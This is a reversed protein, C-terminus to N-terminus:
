LSEVFLIVLQREAESLNKFNTVVQEAEGGHWLIAEEINRARGDHLFNTHGNVVNVLGIGWLPPTKWEQGNAEFSPRNDALGSGMDHLLLDTFPYIKQNALEPIEHYGTTYSPRHCSTCGIEAFLLEGRIVSADNVNRPAPVALTQCYFTVVDLIDQTIEPSPSNDIFNSQGYSHEVPFYPSTIGMDGNYAGAVQQLITPNIGKWGFRGLEMQENQYNYVYNPKGSIGDLDTDFEDAYSLIDSEAIAELLGLGYVGPAVRPSLMADTPFNAYTNIVSYTPKRLYVKKGDPYTVEIEEYTAQFHGEPTSNYVAHNQIQDAFGPVPLPGGHADTGPISTRLFFGNFNNLDNPHGARGDRPHCAICSNNNYVPGLGSNITAPATVFAQEFHLDGDLHLNFNTNSLNPAPTSFAHSTADIITTEGGAYLRDARYSEIVPDKKCSIALTLIIIILPLKKM